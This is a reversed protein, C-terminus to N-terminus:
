QVEFEAWDLWFVYSDDPQNNHIYDEAKEVSGFVERVYSGGHKENEFVIYVKM